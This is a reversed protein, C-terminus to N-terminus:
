SRPSPGLNLLLAEWTERTVANRPRGLARERRLWDSKYIELATQAKRLRNGPVAMRGRAGRRPQPPAAAAGSDQLQRQAREDRMRQTSSAQHRSETLISGAAFMGFPMNRDAQAKHVAHRREVGAVTLKSIFASMLLMWRLRPLDSVFEEKAFCSRCERAFGAPLCCPKKQFFQTLLQQHDSRRADCLGYLRFPWRDLTALYRRHVNSAMLLIHNRVMKAELPSTEVWQAFSEHGGQQWVLRLRSGSGDLLCSFYQLIAVFKSSPAWVADLM